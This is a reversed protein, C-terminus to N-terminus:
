DGEEDGVSSTANAMEPQEEGKEDSPSSESEKHPKGGTMATTVAAVGADTLAWGEGVKEVFNTRTAVRELSSVYAASKLGAEKALQTKRKPEKTLCKNVAAATTGLRCGFIDVGITDKGPSASKARPKSAKQPTEGQKEEEGDLSSNSTEVEETDEKPAEVKKKPGTQARVKVENCEELTTTIQKLLELEEGEPSKKAKTIVEAFKDKDAVKQRLREMPWKEPDKATSFGMAVLMSRLATEKVKLAQTEVEVEMAPVDESSEVARDQSQAVQGIRGQPPVSPFLDESNNERRNISGELRARCNREAAELMEDTVDDPTLGVSSLLRAYQPSNMLESGERWYLSNLKAQVNTSPPDKPLDKRPGQALGSNPRGEVEEEEELDGDVEDGESEGQAVSPAQDPTEEELVEERALKLDKDEKHQM